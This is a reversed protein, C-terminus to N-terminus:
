YIKICLEQSDNFNLLLYLKLCACGFYTLVNDKGFAVDIGVWVSCPFQTTFAGMDFGDHFLVPVINHFPMSLFDLFCVM